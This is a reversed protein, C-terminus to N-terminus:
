QERSLTYRQDVRLHEIRPPEADVGALLLQVAARDEIDASHAKARLILGGANAAATRVSRRDIIGATPEPSRRNCTRLQERLVMSLHAQTGDTTVISRLSLDHAWYRLAGVNQKFVFAVGAPTGALVLWRRDRSDNARM